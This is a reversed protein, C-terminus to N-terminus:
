RTCNIENQSLQRPLFIQTPKYITQTADENPENLASDVSPTPLSTSTGRKLGASGTKFKEENIGEESGCQM